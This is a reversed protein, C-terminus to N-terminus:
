WNWGGLALILSIAVYSAEQSRNATVAGGCGIGQPLHLIAQAKMMLSPVGPSYITGKESETHYYWQTYGIGANLSAELCRQHLGYGITGWYTNIGWCETLEVDTGLSFLAQNRRFHASLEAHFFESPHYEYNVTASASGLGVQLWLAHNNRSMLSTNEQKEEDQGPVIRMSVPQVTLPAANQMHGSPHLFDQSAAQQLLICTLLLILPLLSKLTMITAKTTPNFFPVTLTDYPSRSRMVFKLTLSIATDHADAGHSTLDKNNIHGDMKKLISIFIVM